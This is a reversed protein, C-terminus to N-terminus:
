EPAKTGAGELNIEVIDLATSGQIRLTATIPDAVANPTFQLRVTGEKNGEITFPQATEASFATQDAPQFKWTLSQPETYRNKLTVEAKTTGSNAVAPSFKLPNTPVEDPLTVVLAPQRLWFWTRFDGGSRGDGSPLRIKSKQDPEDSGFTDGDLFLKSKTDWLFNGLITLRALVKPTNDNAGLDKLFTIAGEQPQWHLISKGAGFDFDGVLTLSLFAGTGLGKYLQELPPYPLEVTLYCAPPMPQDELERDLIFDIGEILNNPLIPQDNGLDNGTAVLVVKQIAIGDEREVTANFRIPQLVENKGNLLRAQVTQAKGFRERGLDLTWMCEAIGKDTTGVTIQKGQTLKGDVTTGTLEGEFKNQITFQVEAKSIAEYRHFVAVQLPSPLKGDDEAEQGDGGVYSFHLPSLCANFHIPELRSKFKADLLRAEVTQARDLVDPDLTWDCKAVGNPGTGINIKSGSTKNGDPDIGALTGKFNDLIAFQIAKGPVPEYVNFVAVQLPKPLKHDPGAEQGDGGVYGYRILGLRANFSIPAEQNTPEVLAAEVQQARLPFGDPGNATNLTWECTAIGKDNSFAYTKADQVMDGKLVGGQKSEFHVKAGPLPDSGKFVAVLLKHALTGNSEAEQGDGGVYALHPWLTLDTLPNFTTRCDLVEFKLEPQPADQESTCTWKGLALPCRHRRIGIREADELKEVSGDSTRAAFHWYDGVRLDHGGFEIRIGDGLDLDPTKGEDFKARASGIGDWRRLVMHHHPNGAKMYLQPLLFEAPLAEALSVTFQDPDPDDALTTLHGRGPGLESVDDSIEVLDGARLVTAQDRGLSALTLKTRQAEDVATVSVAFAANDRSWKFRAVRGSVAAKDIVLFSETLPKALLLKSGDESFGVPKATESHGKDDSVTVTGWNLLAVRESLTLGKNLFLEMAQTTADKSLQVHVAFGGSAINLVSEDAVTFGQKLGDGLLLNKGDIKIIAVTETKQSKDSLFVIGAHPLADQREKDELEKTLVIEEAAQKADEQLRVPLTSHSIDLVDGPEHIEVRYLRNERNTYNVDDPLRCTDTSATDKPKLITTLKGQGDHPIYNHATECTAVGKPLPAVKVQAVTKLRTATDPGGLAIERLADDELYTILRRWVELYIIGHKFDDKKLETTFFPLSAGPLDPQTFFTTTTELQAPIGHVYYRGATIGFDGKSSSAISEVIEFATGPKAPTGCVGVLDRNEQEMLYLRSLVDENWDADLWVRGQQHLVAAYHKQYSENRDFILRSFDARM